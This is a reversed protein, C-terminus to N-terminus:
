TQVKKINGYKGKSMKLTGNYETVYGNVEINDNEKLTNVDKDWLTLMISSEGDDLLVEQLSIREGTKKAIERIEFVELITGSVIAGENVKLESIKKKQNEM